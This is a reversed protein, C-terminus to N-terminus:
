WNSPVCSHTKTWNCPQLPRIGESLLFSVTETLSLRLSAEPTRLKRQKHLGIVVLSFQTGLRQLFTRFPVAVLSQLQAALHLLRRYNQPSMPLIQPSQTGQM